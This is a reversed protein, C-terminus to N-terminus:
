TMRKGVVAGLLAGIMVVLVAIGILAIKKKVM